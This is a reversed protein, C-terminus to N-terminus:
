YRKEVIEFFNGIKHLFHQGTQLPEAQSARECGRLEAWQELRGLSEQVAGIIDDFQTVDGRVAKVKGGLRAFAATAGAVDIDVCTVDHGSAALIPIMRRGIFGAGGIVLISM